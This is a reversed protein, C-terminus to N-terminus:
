YLDGRDRQSSWSARTSGSVIPRAVGDAESWVQPEWGAFTVVDAPMDNVVNDIFSNAASIYAGEPSNGASSGEVAPPIFSRGRGRRGPTASRWNICLSTRAPLPTGSLSGPTGAVGLEYEIDFAPAKAVTYRFITIFDTVLGLYAAECIDQFAGVLDEGPTDLILPATQKFHFVNVATNPSSLRRWHIALRYVDNVAM